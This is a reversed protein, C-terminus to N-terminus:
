WKTSHMKLKPHTVLYHLLISQMSETLPTLYKKDRINLKLVHDGTKFTYGGNNGVIGIVKSKNKKAYKVASVINLSINKKIDGGGVSLVFLADKSNFNSIKLWSTFSSEWGDDNIRATLESVNDTPTYSEILCLKRFDNVAHSCNAASGGVGIFFVRGKNKRIIFLCDIINQIKKEELNSIIDKFNNFYDNYFNKLNNKM